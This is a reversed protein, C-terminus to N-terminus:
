RAVRFFQRDRTLDVTFSFRNSVTTFNTTLLSWGSLDSSTELRYNLGPYGSWNLVVHENILAHELTPPAVIQELEAEKLLLESPPEPADPSQLAVQDLALQVNQFADDFLGAAQKLYANYTLGGINTPYAALLADIQRQAQARDGKLLAYDAFLRGKQETQARDLLAPENTIVVSVPVGALVGKWAGPRTVNTTNLTATIAFTGAPLQTTEAPTLWWLMGGGSDSNLQVVENTIPAPHFPWSQPQDNADRVDIQLANFWPSNTGSILIPAANSDFADPHILAVELVLPWGRYLLLQTTRNASAAVAIGPDVTLFANSTTVVGLTNSVIASFVTGDDGSRLPATSFATNSGTALPLGNRLWTITLPISGDAELSLQASEGQRASLNVPQQLIVPPGDAAQVSAGECIVAALCMTRLLSLGRRTFDPVITNAIM